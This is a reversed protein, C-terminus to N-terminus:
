GYNRSADSDLKKQLKDAYAKILQANKATAYIGRVEERGERKLRARREAQREAATKAM